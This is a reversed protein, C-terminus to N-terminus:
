PFEAGFDYFFISPAHREFAVDRVGDSVAPGDAAGLVYFNPKKGTPFAAAAPALVLLLGTITALRRAFGGM